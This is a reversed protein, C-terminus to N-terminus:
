PDSTMWNKLASSNLKIIINQSKKEAATPTCVHLRIHTFQASFATGQIVTINKTNGLIQSMEQPNWGCESRGKGGDWRRPIAASIALNVGLGLLHKPKIAPTGPGQVAVPEKKNQEVFGLNQNM